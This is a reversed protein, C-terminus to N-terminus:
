SVHRPPWAGSLVHIVFNGFTVADLMASKTAINLRKKAQETVSGHKQLGKKCLPLERLSIPLQRRTLGGLKLCSPTAQYVSCPTCGRHGASAEHSLFRRAIPICRSVDQLRAQVHCSSETLLFVKLAARGAIDFL